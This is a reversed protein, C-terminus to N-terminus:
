IKGGVIGAERAAGYFMGVAVLLAGIAYLGMSTNIGTRGWSLNMYGEPCYKYSVKSTNSGGFDATNGTTNQLYFKGTTADMVYDTTVTLATGSGNTISVSTLGCDSQRWTTPAQAVTFTKSANLEGGALKASAISISEDKIDTLATVKNGEAAIQSVFVAALLLAISGMVMLSITKNM